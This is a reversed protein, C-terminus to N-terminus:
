GAGGMALYNYLGFFFEICIGITLLLRALFLISPRGGATRTFIPILLLTAGLSLSVSTLLHNLTALLTDLPRGPFYRIACLLYVLFLGALALYKKVPGSGAEKADASLDNM